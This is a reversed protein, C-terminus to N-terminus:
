SDCSSRGRGFRGNCDLVSTTSNRSFRQTLKARLGWECPRSRHISQDVISHSESLGDCPFRDFDKFGHNGLNQVLSTHHHFHHAAWGHTGALRSAKPAPHTSIQRGISCEHKGPISLVRFGLGEVTQTECISVLAYLCAYSIAAVLSKDLCARFGSGKVQRPM